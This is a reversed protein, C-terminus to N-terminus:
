IGNFDGREYRQTLMRRSVKQNSESLIQTVYIYEQPRKFKALNQVAKQEFVTQSTKCVVLAVIKEGYVRDPVGFVVAEEAVRLLQEEIESPFIKNGGHDIVDSQRSYVFLKGYKFEGVDSTKVRKPHKKGLYGSFLYPSKVEILSSTNHLLQVEDFLQGVCSVEKGKNLDQWSIMSTESTGYMEFLNTKTAQSQIKRPLSPHLCGGCMVLTSINKWAIENAKQEIFSPVAFLALQPLVISSWKPKLYMVKGLFFSLLLTHLGLSTALPSPTAMSKCDSLKFHQNCVLFGARWSSWNRCYVKPIGTTGSTLGLFLLDNAMAPQPRTRVEEIFQWNGNLNTLIEDLYQLIHESVIIPVRGAYHIALFEDVFSLEQRGIIVVYQCVWHYRSAKQHARAALENYSFSGKRTILATQEGYHDALMDFDFHKTM